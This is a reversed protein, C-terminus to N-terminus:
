NNGKSDIEKKRADSRSKDRNIEKRLNQEEIKLAAISQDLVEIQSNITKIDDMKDMNKSEKMLRNKEATARSIKTNILVIEKTKEIEKIITSQNEEIITYNFYDIFKGIKIGKSLIDSRLSSSLRQKMADTVKEMKVYMFDPTIQQMAISYDLLFQIILGDEEEVEMKLYEDYFRINSSGRKIAKIIEQEVQNQKGRRIKGENNVSLLTKELKAIENKLLVINQEIAKTLEKEVVRKSALTNRNEIQRFYLKANDFVRDMTLLILNISYKADVEQESEANRESYYFREFGGRSIMDIQDFLAEVLYEHKDTMNYTKNNVMDMIIDFISLMRARKPIRDRYIEDLLKSNRGSYNIEEILRAADDIWYNDKIGSEDIYKDIKGVYYIINNFKNSIKVEENIRDIQFVEDLYNLKEKKLELINYFYDYLIVFSRFKNKAEIVQDMLFYFNIADRPKQPLINEYYGRTNDVFEMLHNKTYDNSNMHIASQKPEFLHNLCFSSSENLIANMKDKITEKYNSKNGFPIFNMIEQHSLKRIYNRFFPPLGKKLIEVTTKNATEKNERRDSELEYVKGIKTIDNEIGIIFNEIKGLVITVIAPHSLYELITNMIKIGHEPCLDIDDFTIFILPQIKEESTEKLYQVFENIFDETKRALIMDSFIISEAIKSYESSGSIFGAMEIRSSERSNIFTKKLENHVVKLKEIKKQNTTCYNKNAGCLDGILEEFSFIVWGLANKEANFKEPDIIPLIINDKRLTKNDKQWQLENLITLMLSTKGVGRDGIISITNNPKIQKAINRKDKEYINDFYNNAVERFDDIQSIIREYASYMRSDNSKMYETDLIGAGISVNGKFMDKM